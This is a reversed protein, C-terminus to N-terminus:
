GGYWHGSGDLTRGSLAGSSLRPNVDGGNRAVERAGLVVDVRERPARVCSADRVTPVPAPEQELEAAHIVPELPGTRSSKM